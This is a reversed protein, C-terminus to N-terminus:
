PRARRPAAKKTVAKKTVAKKTVAKKAATKKAATKRAATKKAPYTKAAAATGKTAPSGTKETSATAGKIAKKGRDPKGAAQTRPRAVAPQVKAATAKSTTNASGSLAPATKRSAAGAQRKGTGTQPRSEAFRERPVVERHENGFLDVYVFMLREGVDASPITVTWDQSALDEAFHVSRLNFVEDDYAYDVLIM